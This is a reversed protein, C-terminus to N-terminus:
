LASYYIPFYTKSTVLEFTMNLYQIDTILLSAVFVCNLAEVTLSARGCHPFHKLPICYPFCRVNLFGADLCVCHQPLSRTQLGRQFFNRNLYCFIKRCICLELYISIPLLLPNSNQPNVKSNFTNFYRPFHYQM